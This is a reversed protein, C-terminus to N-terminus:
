KQSESSWSGAATWPDEDPLIKIHIVDSQTHPQRAIDYRAVKVISM